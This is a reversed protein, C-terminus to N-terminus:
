KLDFDFKMISVCLATTLIKKSYTSVLLFLLPKSCFGVIDELVGVLAVFLDSM